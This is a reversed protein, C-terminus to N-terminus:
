RHLWRWRHHLRAHNSQQEIAAEIEPALKVGGRLNRSDVWVSLGQGELAERLEKAFADDKTAHSIFIASM